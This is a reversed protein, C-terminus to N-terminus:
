RAPSVLPWSHCTGTLFCFRPLGSSLTTRCPPGPRPPAAPQVRCGGGSPDCEGVPRRGAWGHQGPRTLGCCARCRGDRLGTSLMQGPDWLTWGLTVRATAAHFVLQETHVLTM